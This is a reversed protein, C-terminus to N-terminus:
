KEVNRNKIIFAEGSSFAMEKGDELMLVIEANQNIEKVIGSFSNNGVSLNVKKGDLWSRKRYEDMFNKNELNKYLIFFNDIIKAALKARIEDPAKEDFVSGAIDKIELPFGSEPEQVNVGIGVVAYDLNGSEFDIAAETLIGCVKKDEIYIDNVWKIKAEKDSLSEIAQSVAVAAATTIFLSESVSFKPRLLISVYVGTGMPSEFKRGLRGKGATQEAAIIITGEMGKNQARSKLLTNTSEVTEYVHVDLNKNVLYSLVIEKSLVDGSSILKYGMNRQGEIKYGDNRLSNVAKWVSNRSVGLENALRNGSFNEGKLLKQLVSYKVTM